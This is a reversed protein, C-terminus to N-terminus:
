GASWNQKRYQAFAVCVVGGGDGKELVLVVEQAALCNLERPRRRWFQSPTPTRM